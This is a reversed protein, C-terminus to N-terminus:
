SDMNPRLKARVLIATINDHGNYQNALDILETVGQELNAGSRLLPALINQGYTELLDNDSLGDSVLIFLSDETIEFFEADPNISHQDRPGLAQTLQYADPRAYAISAEVGHAMERQGVEHDVTIQELGRKRTLRYLRSDGVHAVAAETGQILLMVLTTGMRKTGSRVEQQNVEYIEQNALCVAECLMDKTPMQNDVWHEEFYQRLTNVALASAIEGGAHGGMGDCLIYLCRAELARNQPCDLKNIKTVIGFYDENYNRKRGVDTRGADDLSSLQMSLMITPADDGKASFDDADDSPLITEPTTPAKATVPAELEAAIEKLLSRLQLITEVKGAELDALVKMISGFQTRQSQRFLEQWVQGLAQITVPQESELEGEECSSKRSSDSYLRQLALTQDEDLRLNSLNLLSQCCDVTELVTWLQTMEYLYHLLQLTSTTNDQWLELLYQWDSRDEILLVQMDDKEWADHIVPIASETQSELVIYAKALHSIESIEGSSIMLDEEQSALIAEIPSIQYPLCDLVKVCIEAQSSNEEPASLPSLLQYRQESELFSGATLQSLSLFGGPINQADDAGTSNEIEEGTVLQTIIAQWVTGCEAGCNHCVLTNVPVETGCEDCIRDTLSEGCSQCFKNSNPNEFTCQPCILM